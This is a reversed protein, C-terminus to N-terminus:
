ENLLKEVMSIMKKDRTYCYATTSSTDHANLIGMGALKKLATRVKDIDEHTWTAVGRGTDISHPNEHFFKIVKRYIENKLIEEFKM